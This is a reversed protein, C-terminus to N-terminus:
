RQGSVRTASSTRGSGALSGPHEPSAPAVMVVQQHQQRPGRSASSALLLVRVLKVMRGQRQWQQLIMVVLQRGAGHQLSASGAPLHVQQRQPALVMKLMVALLLLRRRPAADALALQRGGAHSAPLVAGGRGRSSNSQKVPSRRVTQTMEGVMMVAKMGGAMMAPLVTLVEWPLPLGRLRRRRQQQGAPAAAAHLGRVQPVQALVVWTRVLLMQSRRIVVLQERLVMMRRWKTGMVAAVTATAAATGATMVAAVTHHWRQTMMMMVMVVQPM